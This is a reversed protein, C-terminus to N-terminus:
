VGRGLQYAQGMAPTNKVEGAEYCAAAKTPRRM